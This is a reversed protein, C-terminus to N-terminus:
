RGSKAPSCATIEEPMPLGPGTAIITGGQVAQSDMATPPLYLGVKTRDEGEEIKVLVRDGVVILRKGEGGALVMSLVRPDSGDRALGSGISAAVEAVDNAPQGNGSGDREVGAGLQAAGAVVNRERDTKQQGVPRPVDGALDEVDIASADQGPSM